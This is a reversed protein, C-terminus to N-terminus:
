KGEGLGFKAIVNYYLKFGTYNRHTCNETLFFKLFIVM